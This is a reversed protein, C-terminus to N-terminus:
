EKILAATRHELLLSAELCGNLLCVRFSVKRTPTHSRDQAEECNELMSPCLKILFNAPLIYNNSRSTM